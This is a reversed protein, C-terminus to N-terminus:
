DCGLLPPPRFSSFSFAGFSLRMFAFLSGL